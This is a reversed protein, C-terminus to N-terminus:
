FTGLEAEKTADGPTAEDATQGLTPEEFRTILINWETSDFDQNQRPSTVFDLIDGVQLEVAIEFDQRSDALSRGYLIKGNKQIRIDVGDGQGTPTASGVITGLFREPATWRRIVDIPQGKSFGPHAGNAAISAYGGEPLGWAIGFQNATGAHLERLKGDTRYLYTWNNEGQTLAFDDFSEAVPKPDNEALAITAPGLIVLPAQSIKYSSRKPVLTGVADFAQHDGAVDLTTTGWRSWCVRLARGDDLLFKLSYVRQALREREVFCATDLKAAWAAWAQGVPTIQNSSDILGTSFSQDSKSLYYNGTELASAAVAAITKVLDDASKLNGFETAWIGHAHGDADLQERLWAVEQLVMEPGTYPHVVVKDIADGIGADFCWKIYRLPINVAACGLILIEDYDSNARVRDSVVKTLKALLPAVEKPRYGGGWHGNAENWIEIAEILGPYKGDPGAYRGLVAVVYDAFAERAIDTDPFITGPSDYLANGFDFGLIVRTGGDALQAFVRDGYGWDYVGPKRELVNWYLEDRVRNLHIGKGSLTPVVDTSWHKQGYHTQAGFRATQGAQCPAAFANSSVGAGLVAAGILVDRRSILSGNRGSGVDRKGFAICDCKDM